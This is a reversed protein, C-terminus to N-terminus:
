CWGICAYLNGRCAKIKTNMDVVSSKPLHLWSATKNLNWHKHNLCIDVERYTLYQAELEKINNKVGTTNIKITAM